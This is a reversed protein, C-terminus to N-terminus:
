VYMNRLSLMVSNTQPPIECQGLHLFGQKTIDYLLKAILFNFINASIYPLNQDNSILISIFGLVMKWISLGQREFDPKTEVHHAASLSGTTVISYYTNGYYQLMGLVNRGVVHVAGNGFGTIVVISIHFCVKFIVLKRNVTHELRSVALTNMICLMEKQFANSIGAMLFLCSSVLGGLFQGVLFVNAPGPKEGIGTWGM